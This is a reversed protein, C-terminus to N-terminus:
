ACEKTSDSWTGGDCECVKKKSVEERISAIYTRVGADVMSFWPKCADNDTVLGHSTGVNVLSIAGNRQCACGDCTSIHLYLKSRCTQTEGYFGRFCPVAREDPYARWDGQQPVAVFARSDEITMLGKPPCCTSSTGSNAPRYYGWNGSKGQNSHDSPIYGPQDATPFWRRRYNLGTNIKSQTDPWGKDTWDSWGGDMKISALKGKVDNGDPDKADIGTYDMGWNETYYKDLVLDYGGCGLEFELYNDTSATQTVHPTFYHQGMTMAFAERAADPYDSGYTTGGYTGEACIIKSAYRPKDSLWDLWGKDTLGDWVSKKEGLLKYHLWAHTTCNLEFRSAYDATVHDHDGHLEFSVSSSGSTPAPTPNQSSDCVAPKMLDARIARCLGVHNADQALTSKNSTLMNCDDLSKDAIASAIDSDWTTCCTQKIALMPARLGAMYERIAKDYKQYFKGCDSHNSSGSVMTHNVSNRIVGKAGNPMTCECSKCVDFVWSIQTKCVTNDSMTKHLQFTNTDVVRYELDKIYAATAFMKKSPAMINHRTNVIEQMRWNPTSAITRMGTTRRGTDGGFYDDTIDGAATLESSDFTSRLVASWILFFNPQFSQFFGELAAIGLTLVMSMAATPIPNDCLGGNSQWEYTPNTGDDCIPNPNVACSDTDAFVGSRRRGDGPAGNRRRHNSFYMTGGRQSKFDAYMVDVGPQLAFKNGGPLVKMTDDSIDLADGNEDRADGLTAMSAFVEANLGMRLTHLEPDDNPCCVSVFDRSGYAGRSLCETPVGFISGEVWESADYGAAAATCPSALLSLAVVTIIM